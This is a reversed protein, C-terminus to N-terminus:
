IGRIPRRPNFLNNGNTRNRIIKEYKNGGKSNTYKLVSKNLNSLSKFIKKSKNVDQKRLYAGNQM